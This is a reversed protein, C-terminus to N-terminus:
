RACSLVDADPGSAALYRRGYVVIPFAVVGLLLLGELASVWGPATGAVSAVPTANVTAHAIMVVPIAGGSANFLWALVVSLLVTGIPFAVLTGLGASEYGAGGLLLWPYHWVGFALGVLVAARLADSREQLHAQAFGRWGFEELAGAILLSFLFGAAIDSLPQGIALDVGALGAVLDGNTFLLAAAVALGYWRLKTRPDAVTRLWSRVDGGRLSVLAVAALPPGWAFPAHLFRTAALREPGLVGYLLAFVGWSYAFTLLFFTTVPHTRVLRELTRGPRNVRDLADETASETSREFRDTASRETRREGPENESM